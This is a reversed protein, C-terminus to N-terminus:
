APWSSRDEITWVQIEALPRNLGLAVLRKRLRLRNITQSTTPRQSQARRHPAPRARANWERASVELARDINPRDAAALKCFGKLFEKLLQFKYSRTPRIGYIQLLMLVRDVLDRDLSKPGPKSPLIMDVPGLIYEFGEPDEQAWRRLRKLLRSPM